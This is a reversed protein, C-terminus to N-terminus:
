NIISLAGLIVAVTGLVGTFLKRKRKEKKVSEELRDIAEKYYLERDEAIKRQLAIISDRRTSVISDSLIIKRQIGVISKTSEFDVIISNITKLNEQTITILTDGRYEVIKQGCVSIIPLLTFLLSLIFPKKM